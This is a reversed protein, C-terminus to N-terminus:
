FNGKLKLSIILSLISYFQSKLNDILVYAIIPHKLWLYYNIKLISKVLVDSTTGRTTLNRIM